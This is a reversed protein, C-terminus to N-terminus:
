FVTKQLRCTDFFVMFLGSSPFNLTKQHFNHNQPTQVGWGLFIQLPPHPPWKKSGGGNRFEFLSPPAVTTPTTASTSARTTTSNAALPLDAQEEGGQLVVQDQDSNSFALINKFHYGSMFITFLNHFWAKKM